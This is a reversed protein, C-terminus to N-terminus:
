KLNSCKGNCEELTDCIAITRDMSFWHDSYECYYMIKSPQEVRHYTVHPGSNVSCGVLFVVMFLILQKM